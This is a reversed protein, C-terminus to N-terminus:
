LHWHPFHNIFWLMLLFAWIAGYLLAFFHSYLSSSSVATPHRLTLQEVQNNLDTIVPPRHDGMVKMQDSDAFTM